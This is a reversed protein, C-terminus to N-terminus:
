IREDSKQPPFTSPSRGVSFMVGASFDKNLLVAVTATQQSLFSFSFQPPFAYNLESFMQHDTVAPDTSSRISTTKM